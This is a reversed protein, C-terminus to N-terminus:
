DAYDASKTDLIKLREKLLETSLEPYEVEEYTLETISKYITDYLDNGYLEELWKKDITSANDNDLFSLASISDIEAKIIRSLNESGDNLSDSVTVKKPTISNNTQGLCYGINGLLFFIYLIRLIM